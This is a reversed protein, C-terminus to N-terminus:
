SRQTYIAWLKALEATGDTGGVSKLTQVAKAKQGAIAYAIGLHLNADEPRKLGGKKIGAEMLPIGKAAQGINVYNFGLTVLANGDKAAEAAAQDGGSELSKRTETAKNEALDKLRKQRDADAGKGLANNSYGADVIKKAEIASGAQIALQAMEMYDNTKDLNGTALQLRYVDLMLRDSFGSKRQLRNLVDLWLGKKPYYNLLKEITAVYNGTDKQKLYCNALLQLKEENPTRGAKEDAQVDEQALKGALAFDGSLFYSQLILTRTAATGAGAAQAKQAYKIANAYDHARYYLSALSDMMKGQEAAPVKGSALVNELSKIAGATDGAGLAASSRMREVMFSEYATKGSVQDAEHVKTMAEKYKGAKMLSAADQLPKGVEPRVSEQAFLAGSASVTLAAALLTRSLIKPFKM